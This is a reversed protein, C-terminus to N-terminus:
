FGLDQDTPPPPDQEGQAPGPEPQKAEEAEAPPAAAKTPPRYTMAMQVAQGFLAMPLTLLDSVGEETGLQELLATLIENPEIGLAQARALAASEILGARQQAAEQEQPDAAQEAGATVDAGGALATEVTGTSPEEEKPKRVFIEGPQVIGDRLSNYVGRLDVMEADALKELPKEIYGELMEKTVGFERFKTVIEAWKTKAERAAIARCRQYYAEVLGKPLGSLIANRMAKSAGAQIAMVLRADRLRETPGDHRKLYKAVTFPKEVRFNSELDLFVGSLYVHEEDEGVQVGRTCCNGWRRALAMAAGIGPGAVEVKKNSGRREKYEISYYNQEALDPYLELESIAGELVEAEKRPRQVAVMMMSDNEARMLTLGSAVLAAGESLEEERPLIEAPRPPQESEAM